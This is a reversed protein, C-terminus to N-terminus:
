PARLSPYRAAERYAAVPDKPSGLEDLWAGVTHALEAAVDGRWARVLGRPDDEPEPAAYAFGLSRRAHPPLVIRLDLALGREGADQPPRARVAAGVEALVRLGDPGQRECAGEAAGYAGPVDWTETYRLLLPDAARNELWVLGLLLPRPTHPCFLVHAMRANRAACLRRVQAVGFQTLEPDATRLVDPGCLALADIRGGAFWVEGAAARAKCAGNM